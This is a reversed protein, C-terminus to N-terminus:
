EAHAVPHRSGADGKRHFSGTFPRWSGLVIPLIDREHARFVAVDRASYRMGDKAQVPTMNEDVIILGLDPM